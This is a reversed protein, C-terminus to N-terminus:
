FVFYIEEGIMFNIYGIIEVEKYFFVDFCINLLFLKIFGKIKYM